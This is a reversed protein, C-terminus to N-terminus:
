SSAGSIGPAPRHRDSGSGGVGKSWIFRGDNGSYKALFVDIRRRQETTRELGASGTFYGTVVV